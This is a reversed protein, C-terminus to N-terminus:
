KDNMNNIVIQGVFAWVSVFAISLAIQIIHVPMTAKRRYSPSQEGNSQHVHCDM